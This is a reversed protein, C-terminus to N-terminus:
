PDSFTLRRLTISELSVERSMTSSSEEAKSVASWLVALGGESKQIAQPWAPKVASAALLGYLEKQCDPSVQACLRVPWMEKSHSVGSVSPSPPM